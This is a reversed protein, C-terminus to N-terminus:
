KLIVGAISWGSEGNINIRNGNHLIDEGKFKIYNGEYETVYAIHGKTSGNKELLIASVKTRNSSTRFYDVATTGEEKFDIHESFLPSDNVTIGDILNMFDDAYLNSEENWDPYLNM